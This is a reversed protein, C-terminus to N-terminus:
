PLPSPARPASPRSGLARTQQSHRELAAAMTIEHAKERAIREGDAAQAAEKKESNVCLAVYASSLRILAEGSVDKMDQWRSWIRAAYSRDIGAAKAARDRAATWTDTPGRHHAETLAILMRRSHAAATTMTKSVSRKDFDVLRNDSM